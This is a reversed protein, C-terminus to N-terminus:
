GKRGTGEPIKDVVYVSDVNYIRTKDGDDALLELDYKVKGEYFHVCLIMAAIDASWLRFWVFEGIGYRSPFISHEKDQAPQTSNEYKWNEMDAHSVERQYIPINKGDSSHVQVGYTSLLYNGFSILHAETFMIHRSRKASGQKLERLYKNKSIGFCKGPSIIVKSPVPSKALM